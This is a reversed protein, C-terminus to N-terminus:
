RSGLSRLYYDSACKTKCMYTNLIFSFGVEEIERLHGQQTKLLAKSCSNVSGHIIKLQKLFIM